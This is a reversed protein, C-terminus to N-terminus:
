HDSQSLNQSDSQGLTLRIACCARASTISSRILRRSLQNPILKTVLHTCDFIQITKYRSMTSKDDDDSKKEKIRATAVEEKMMETAQKKGRIRMPEM